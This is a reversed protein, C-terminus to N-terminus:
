YPDSVAFKTVRLLEIVVSAVEVHALCGTLHEQGALIVM